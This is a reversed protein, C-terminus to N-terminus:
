LQNNVEKFAQSQDPCLKPALVLGLDKCFFSAIEGDEVFQEHRDAHYWFHSMRTAIAHPM